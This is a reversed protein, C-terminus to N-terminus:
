KEEKRCQACRGLLVTRAADLDFAHVKRLHANLENLYECNVHFLRGCDICQCHLHRHCATADDVYQYLVRGSQSLAKRAEGELVMQELKRYVTTKGVEVGRARLLELLEDSTITRTGCDRLAQAVCTKQKTNYGGRTVNTGGDKM